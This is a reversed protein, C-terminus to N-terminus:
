VGTVLAPFRTEHDIIVIKVANQVFRMVIGDKDRIKTINCCGNYSQKRM